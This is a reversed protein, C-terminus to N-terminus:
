EVSRAVCIAESRRWIELAKFVKYNMAGLVFASVRM